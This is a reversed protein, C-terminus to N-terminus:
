LRCWSSSRLPGRLLLRAVRLLLDAYLLLTGLDAIPLPTLRVDSGAGPVLKSILLLFLLALAMFFKAV